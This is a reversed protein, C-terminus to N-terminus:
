ESEKIMQVDIIEIFFDSDGTMRMILNISDAFFEIFNKFFNM